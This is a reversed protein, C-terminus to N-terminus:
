TVYTCDIFFQLILWVFWCKEVSVQMERCFSALGRWAIGMQDRLPRLVYYGTLLTFIRLRGYRPRANRRM